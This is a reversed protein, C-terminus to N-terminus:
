RFAKRIRVHKKIKEKSLSILSWSCAQNNRTGIFRFLVSEERTPDDRLVENLAYLTESLYCTM